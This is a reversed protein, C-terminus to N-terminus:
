PTVGNVWETCEVTENWRHLVQHANGCWLCQRSDGDVQWRTDDGLFSMKHDPDIACRGDSMYSPWFNLAISLQGLGCFCWSGAKEGQCLVAILKQGIFSGLDDHYGIWRTGNADTYVNVMRARYEHGRATLWRYLNPSYKSGKSPAIVDLDLNNAKTSITM